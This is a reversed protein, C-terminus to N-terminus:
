EDDDNEGQKSEKPGYYQGVCDRGYHLSVRAVERVSYSNYQEFLEHRRDYLQSFELTHSKQQFGLLLVKNNYARVMTHLYELPVGAELCQKSEEADAPGNSLIQSVLFEVKGIFQFVIENLLKFPPLDDPYTRIKMVDIYTSLQNCLMTEFTEVKDITKGKQLLAVLDDCDPGAYNKVRPILERRIKVDWDLYGHQKCLKGAKALLVAAEMKQNDNLTM